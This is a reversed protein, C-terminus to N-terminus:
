PYDKTYRAQIREQRVLRRFRPLMDLFNEACLAGHLGALHELDGLWTRVQIDGPASQADRGGEGQGRPHCELLDFAAAHHNVAVQAQAFFFHIRDHAPELLPADLGGREVIVDAALLGADHEEVEPSM